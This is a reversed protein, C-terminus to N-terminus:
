QTALIHPAHGSPDGGRYLTQLKWRTTSTVGELGESASPGSGAIILKRVLDPADLAMMQAVFGGMSFGFADIKTIKLARVVDVIVKAWVKYSEGIEGGSRGVGANDVL